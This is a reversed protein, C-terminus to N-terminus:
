VGLGEFLNLSERQWIALGPTFWSVFPLNVINGGHRAVIERLAECVRATEGESAIPYTNDMIVLGGHALKRQVADFEVLVTDLGHGGDLYAFRVSDLKEMLTPLVKESAGLHFEVLDSLGAEEVRAKAKEHNVRDIEITHLRGRRGSDRIAQAIVISSSGWNTGTEVIINDQDPHLCALMVHYLIGWAPHGPSLGTKQTWKEMTDADEELRRLVPNPLLGRDYSTIRYFKPDKM